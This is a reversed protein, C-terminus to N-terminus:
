LDRNVRYAGYDTGFTLDQGSFDRIVNSREVDQWVQFVKKGHRICLAVDIAFDVVSTFAARM